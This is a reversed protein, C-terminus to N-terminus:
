LTMVVVSPVSTMDEMWINPGFKHTKVSQPLKILLYPPYKACESQNQGSKHQIFLFLSNVKEGVMIKNSAPHLLM